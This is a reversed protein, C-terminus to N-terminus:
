KKKKKAPKCSGKGKEATVNGTSQDYLFSYGQGDIDATACNGSDVWNLELGSLSIRNKLDSTEPYIPPSNGKVASEIYGFSAATTITVIIQNVKGERVEDRLDLYAPFAIAALMGLLAIVLVIELFTFGNKNRINM